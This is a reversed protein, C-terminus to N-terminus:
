IVDDDRGETQHEDFEQRHAGTWAFLWTPDRKLRSAADRCVVCYVIAIAPQGCSNCTRKKRLRELRKLWERKTKEPIPNGNEDQKRADELLRAAEQYSWFEGDCVGCVRLKREIESKVPEIYTHNEERTDLGPPDCDDAGCSWYEKLEWLPHITNVVLLLAERKVIPTEDTVKAGCRDCADAMYVCVGQAHSGASCEANVCVHHAVDGMRLRTGSGWGQRAWFSGLLSASFSRARIHQMRGKLAVYLFNQLSEHEQGPDWSTIRHQRECELSGCTCAWVELTPDGALNLARGAFLRKLSNRNGDTWTMVESRTDSSLIEIVDGSRFGFKSDPDDAKGDTCRYVARGGPRIDEERGADTKISLGAFIPDGDRGGASITLCNKVPMMPATPTILMATIATATERLPEVPDDVPFLVHLDNRLMRYVHRTIREVRKVLYTFSGGWLGDWGSGSSLERGWGCGFAAVLDLLDLYEFDGNKQQDCYKDAYAELSACIADGPSKFCGGMVAIATLVQIQRRDASDLEDNQEALERIVNEVLRSFEKSTGISLRSDDLEACVIGFVTEIDM